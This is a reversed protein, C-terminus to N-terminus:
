TLLTEGRSPVDGVGDGGVRKGSEEMVAPLVAALQSGTNRLQGWVGGWPLHKSTLKWLQNLLCEHYM